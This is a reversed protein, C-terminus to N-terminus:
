LFTLDLIWASVPEAEEWGGAQKLDALRHCSPPPKGHKRGTCKKRKEQVWLGMHRKGHNLEPLSPILPFAPSDQGPQEPHPMRVFRVKGWARPLVAKGTNEHPAGVCSISLHSYRRRGHCTCAEYKRSDSTPHKARHTPGRAPHGRAEAEQTIRKEM